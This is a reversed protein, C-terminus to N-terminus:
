LSLVRYQVPVTNQEQLQVTVREVREAEMHEVSTDDLVDGSPDYISMPYIIVETTTMKQQQSRHIRKNMTLSLIGM